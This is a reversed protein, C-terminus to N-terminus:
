RDVGFVVLELAGGEAPRMGLLWDPGTEFLTFPHSLQIDALVGGGPGYAMLHARPAGEASVEAWITGDSLADLHVYPPLSAPPRIASLREFQVERGRESAMFDAHYRIAAEYEEATPPRPPLGIAIDTGPEGLAGERWVRAHPGTGDGVVLLDGTSAIVTRRGMARGEMAPFSGIRGTRRADLDTIWVEASSREGSDGIPPFVAPLGAVLFGRDGRCRLSDPEDEPRVEDLYDLDHTWRLIMRRTSDWLFLTDTGCSAVWRSSRMEGPGSGQRVVSRLLNGAADFRHLGPGHHDAVVV